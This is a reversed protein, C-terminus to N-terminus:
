PAASELLLRGLANVADRDSFLAAANRRLTERVRARRDGDEALDVALDIYRDVDAAVLEAL